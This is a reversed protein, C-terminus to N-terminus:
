MEHVLLEPLGKEPWLEAVVRALWGPWGRYILKIELQARRLVVVFRRVSGNRQAGKRGMRDYQRQVRIRVQVVPWRLGTAASEFAWWAEEIEVAQVEMMMRWQL